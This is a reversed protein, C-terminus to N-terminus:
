KKIIDYEAPITCFIGKSVISIPSFGYLNRINSLFGNDEGMFMHIPKINEALAAISIAPTDSYILSIEVNCEESLQKLVKIGKSRNEATEKTPLVTVVLIEASLRNAMQKATHIIEKCHAQPTICALVSKNSM